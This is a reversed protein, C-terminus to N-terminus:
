LVIPGQKKGARLLSFDRDKTVLVASRSVAESWIMGDTANAMGFEAM